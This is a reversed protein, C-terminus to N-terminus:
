TTPAKWSESRFKALAMIEHAQGVSLSALDAVGHAMRAMTRFSDPANLKDLYESLKAAEEDTVVRNEDELPRRCTM